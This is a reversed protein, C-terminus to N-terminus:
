GIGLSDEFGAMVNLAQIVQAAGAKGEPKSEFRVKASGDSVSASYVAALPHVGPARMVLMTREYAGDYLNLLEESAGKFPFSVEVAVGVCDLDAFIEVSVRDGLAALFPEIDDPACESTCSLKVSGQALGAKCLPDIALLALTAVPTPLCVREACVIPNNDFLEIVGVPCGERFGLVISRRYSNLGFELACLSGSQPALLRRHRHVLADLGLVDGYRVIYKASEPM